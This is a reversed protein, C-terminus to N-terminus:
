RRAVEEAVALNAILMPPLITLHQAIGLARARASFYQTDTLKADEALKDVWQELEVKARADPGGRGDRAAVLAEAAIRVAKDVGATNVLAQLALRMCEVKTSRDMVTTDLCSLRGERPEWTLSM